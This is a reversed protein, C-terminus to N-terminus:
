IKNKLETLRELIFKQTNLGTNSLGDICQYITTEPIGCFEAIQKSSYFKLLYKRTLKIEKRM